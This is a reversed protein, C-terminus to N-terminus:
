NNIKVQLHGTINHKEGFIVLEAPATGTINNVTLNNKTVEIKLKQGRIWVFYSLDEWADPLRPNLVIDDGNLRLGGFGLVACQWINGISGSHIGDDSSRMNDPGMDVDCARLFLEYALLYDGMDNALISHPGLSLSSDHLTRPEYYDWNARKVSLDFFDGM